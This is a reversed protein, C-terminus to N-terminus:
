IPCNCVLMNRLAKVTVELDNLGKDDGGKIRGSLGDSRTPM